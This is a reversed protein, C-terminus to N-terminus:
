CAASEVTRRALLAEDLSRGAREVFDLFPDFPPLSTRGPADGYIVAITERQARVPVLAVAGAELPGIRELLRRGPGDPPPPGTWVRGTVVVGAFPSPEDLPITLDRALRDLSVGGAGPGFGALGRLREDKVVFLLARPFFARAGKLLLFAVLDPDPHRDLEQLTSQLVATRAVEDAPPSAGAKAAAWSARTPMRRGQLRPLLDRALKDGFARLDAAYQLPDLKSLGPKFALLSV